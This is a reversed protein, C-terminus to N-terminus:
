TLILVQGVLVWPQSLFFHSKLLIIEELVEGNMKMQLGLIEGETMLSIVLLVCSKHFGLNVKRTDPKPFDNIKNSGQSM